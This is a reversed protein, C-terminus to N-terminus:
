FDPKALIVIFDQAASPGEATIRQSTFSFMRRPLQSIQNGAFKGSSPHVFEARVSFADRHIRNKLSLGGLIPFERNTFGGASNEGSEFRL